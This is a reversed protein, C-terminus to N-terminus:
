SKNRQKQGSWWGRVVVVGFLSIYIFFFACSVLFHTLFSHLSFFTVYVHFFLGALWTWCCRSHAALSAVSLVLDFRMMTAAATHFITCFSAALDDPFNIKSPHVTFTACIDPSIWGIIDFSFFIQRLPSAVDCMKKIKFIKDIRLVDFTLTFLTLLLWCHLSCCEFNSNRLHRTPSEYLLEYTSWSIAFNRMQM